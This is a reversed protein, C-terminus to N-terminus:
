TVLIHVLLAITLLVTVAFLLLGWVPLRPHPKQATHLLVEDTLFVQGLVVDPLGSVAFSITADLTRHSFTDQWDERIYEDLFRDVKRAALAESCVRADLSCPPLSPNGSSLFRALADFTGTGLAVLRRRLVPSDACGVALAHYVQRFYADLHMDAPLGPMARYAKRIRDQPAKDKPVEHRYVRIPRNPSSTERRKRSPSDILPAYFDLIRHASREAQDDLWKRYKRRRQLKVWPLKTPPWQIDPWFESIRRDLHLQSLYAKILKKLLPNGMRDGQILQVFATPVELVVDGSAGSTKITDLDLVDLAFLSVDLLLIEPKKCGKSQEGVSSKGDSQANSNGHAQSIAEEAPQKDSRDDM